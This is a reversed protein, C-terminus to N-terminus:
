NPDAEIEGIWASYATIIAIRMRISLNNEVYERDFVTGAENSNLIDLVLTDLRDFVAEPKASKKLHELEAIRVVQERTPKAIRLVTEDLLKIDLTERAFVSLDLIRNDM